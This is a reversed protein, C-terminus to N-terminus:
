GAFARKVSFRTIIGSGTFLALNIFFNQYDEFILYGLGFLGTYCFVISSMWATLMIGLGNFNNAAIKGWWGFPKIRQHFASLVEPDTPRTIFTAVIIAVLTFGVTVFFTGRNDSFVPSMHPEILYHGLGYGIFPAITATIESWANLRWWFWRGILVFGVGAGCELIFEWVGSISQIVTTIYMGILMVMLTAIRGATVGTGKTGNLPLYLDNVLYSAGWNLQTSITSLYAAIFAVLLLGRLGTPLFDRMVFVYGLRKQMEFAITEQQRETLQEWKPHQEVLALRENASLGGSHERLATISSSVTSQQEGFATNVTSSYLAVACVGVLIWPWPRLCYHAMQFFLTAYQADQESKASMMRQAIYGGGGPEAGPYWSAWWQVAIFSIFAGVSLTVLSIGSSEGISPFFNLYGEPLKEKLSGIGGIDDSNIVVAALIICGTMAVLFQIADTVVVGKLGSLSTYIAALVMFGFVLLYIQIDTIDFFADLLSALALNVWGIVLVNMVLGLYVAKFYRLIRAPKGSYRISILEVETLVEARRWLRSFFIATLMGGILANWWLWNGAIGNNAVIETVALPTDAAFTTAVMSIGALYWPLKRGGLFFDALSNESQKKFYLGILLSLLLFSGIIIYDLLELVM